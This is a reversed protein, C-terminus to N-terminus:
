TKFALLNLTYMEEAIALLEWREEAQVHSGVVAITRIIDYV